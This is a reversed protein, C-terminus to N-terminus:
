WKINMEMKAWLYIEKWENCGCIVAAVVIFLIDELRHLVKNEQRTDELVGFCEFFEGKYMEKSM